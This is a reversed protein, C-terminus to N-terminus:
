GIWLIVKAEDTAYAVYLPANEPTINFEKGVTLFSTRIVDVCEPIDQKALQRIMIM